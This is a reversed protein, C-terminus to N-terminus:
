VAVEARNALALEILADASLRHERHLYAEGGSPGVPVRRVGQRVVRCPLQREAVTECVLSGLGGDVYHAEVSIALSHRALLNALQLSPAPSLCAVVAVTAELGRKALEDAAKLVEFSIAGMSLLLADRGERVVEVGGDHYAGNLGPLADRDNKGLRYYVPGPANWTALLASRAQQYDAPAVVTIGPQLRMVGVDELGFHSAGAHGYEFGGGVGVIRIPLTQLVAGDRIFEYPRLTAFTAISYVFPLYGGEALGTAIGLMNQEAVGVNIFRGPFRDSFPEVVMFGLDGTLFMVRPDREALEVLTKIFTQRM